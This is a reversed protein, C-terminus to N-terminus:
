RLIMANERMLCLQPQSPSGGSRSHLLFLAPQTVVALNPRPQPLRELTEWIPGMSRPAKWSEVTKRPTQAIQVLM